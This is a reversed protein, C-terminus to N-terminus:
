QQMSANVEQTIKTGGLRKWEAVFTDFYDIPKQGTIIAKFSEEEFNLLEGKKEKM